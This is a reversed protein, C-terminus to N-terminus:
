EEPPASWAVETDFSVIDLMRFADRPAEFADDYIM